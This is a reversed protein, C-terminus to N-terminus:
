NMSDDFKVKGNVVVLSVKSERRIVRCKDQQNLCVRVLDHNIENVSLNFMSRLLPSTRLDEATFTGHQEMDSSFLIPQSLNTDAFSVSTILLMVLVLFLKKNRM